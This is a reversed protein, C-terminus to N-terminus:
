NMSLPFIIEINLLNSIQLSIQDPISNHINVAMISAINLKPIESM